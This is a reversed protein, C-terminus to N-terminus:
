TMIHLVFRLTKGLRQHSKALNPRLVTPQKPATTIPSLSFLFYIDLLLKSVTLLKETLFNNFETFHGFEVEPM